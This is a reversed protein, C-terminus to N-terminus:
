PTALLEQWSTVELLRESMRELRDLDTIAELAATSAPDPLDFRKRGQRLLIAKAEALRGAAQGKRIIAQYTVSDEMTDVGQLLHATLEEPYRLGMLIYTATWLWDAKDRTTEQVLRAQMRQIVGPLVPETVDALPALPLTGLSGALVSDVPLRWLRIVQYRFVLYPPEGPFQDQYIGTLTPSDAAPRLLVVATRVPQRYRHRLLTNYWQFHEALETRSSSQLELHLLWPVPDLVRLVKDVAASVTSIDADIVEVGGAAPAGLFALWDRPYAAILDKLTADFPKSM